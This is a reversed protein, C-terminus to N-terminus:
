QTRGDVYIEMRGLTRMTHIYNEQNDKCRVLREAQEVQRRQRIGQVTVESIDKGPDRIDARFKDCCEQCFFSMMGEGAKVGLDVRDTMWVNWNVAGGEEPRGRRGCDPCFSRPLIIAIKSFPDQKPKNDKPEKIPTTFPRDPMTVKGPTFYDVLDSAMKLGNPRIGFLGARTGGAGARAATSLLREAENSIHTGKGARFFKKALDVADKCVKM